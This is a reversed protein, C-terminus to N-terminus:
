TTSILGLAQCGDGTASEMLLLHGNGGFVGTWPSVGEESTISESSQDDDSSGSDTKQHGMMMLLGLWIGPTSLLICTWSTDCPSVGCIWNRGATRCFCFFCWNRASEQPLPEQSIIQFAVREPHDFIESLSCKWHHQSCITMEKGAKLERERQRDTQTHTHTHTDTQRERERLKHMHAFINNIRKALIKKIQCLLFLFSTVFNLCHMQIFLLQFGFLFHHKRHVHVQTIQAGTGDPIVCFFWRQTETSKDRLFCM